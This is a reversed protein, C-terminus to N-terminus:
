LDAFDFYRYEKEAVEKMHPYGDENVGACYPRAEFLTAAKYNGEVASRPVQVVAKVLDRKGDGDMDYDSEVMGCIEAIDSHKPDYDAGSKGDTFPFVPGRWEM